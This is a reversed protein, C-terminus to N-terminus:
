RASAPPIGARASRRREGATSLINLKSGRAGPLGAVRAMALGDAFGVKDNQSTQAFTPQGPSDSRPASDETVDGAALIVSEGGTLPAWFAKIPSRAEGNTAIAWVSAIVALVAVGATVAVKPMRVAPKATVVAAAATSPTAPAYFHPVYSGSTLEIRIESAHEPEHYYPAIRKRV